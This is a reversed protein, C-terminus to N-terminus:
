VIIEISNKNTKKKANQLAQNVREIVNTKLEDKNFETVGCSVTLNFNEGDIDFTSNEILNRKREAAMQANSISTQRAIILFEDGRMFYRYTEDTIRSDKHLLNGLKALIKDAIEYSNDENFMKFDDIDFLILSVPEDKSIWNNELSDLDLALAKHNKLGTLEDIQNEAQIKKFRRNFLLFSITLSIGVLLLSFILIVWITISVEIELKGKVIPIYKLILVLIFSILLYKMLDYFVKSLVDKKFKSFSNKLYNM